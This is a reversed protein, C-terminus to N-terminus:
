KARGRVESPRAAVSWIFAVRRSALQKVTAVYQRATDSIVVAKLTAFRLLRIVSRHSFMETYSLHNDVCQYENDPVRANVFSSIGAHNVM